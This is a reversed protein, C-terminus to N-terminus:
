GMYKRFLGNFIAHDILVPQLKYYFQAAWPHFKRLIIGFYYSDWRVYLIFLCNLKCIFTICYLIQLINYVNKLIKLSSFVYSKTASWTENSKM